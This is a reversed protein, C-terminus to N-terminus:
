FSITLPLHDSVVRAANFCAVLNTTYITSKGILDVLKVPPDTTQSPLRFVINDYPQSLYDAPPTKSSDIGQRVSSLTGNPLTIKYNYATTLDAFATIKQTKTNVKKSYSNLPDCNYDGGICTDQKPTLASQNFQAVQGLNNTFTVADKYDGSTPNSTPGHIGVINLPKGSRTFKAWFATRPLIFNGATNRVAQGSVYTLAKTNYIVGVCEKTGIVKPPVYDYVYATNGVAVNMAAKLAQLVRLCSGYGATDKQYGGSVVEIIVFVDVPTTSTAKSWVADGLAVKVVYDQINNGLGNSAVVAGLKRKLKGSGVKFINWFMLKM